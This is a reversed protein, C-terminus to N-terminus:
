EEIVEMVWRFGIASNPAFDVAFSDGADVTLSEAYNKFSGGGTNGEELLMEAANGALNYIDLKNAWYSAVPALIVGNTYQDAEKENMEELNRKFNARCSGNETFVSNGEWPYIAKTNGAQVAIVWENKTPLRFKVKEFKRKKNGNYQKTLWDCYKTASQYSVNVVPYEGYGEHIHYHEVFPTNYFDKRVWQMSDIKVKEILLSDGTSKAYDRFIRYDDNSAEYKSIYLSDNLKALSNNLVKYDPQQAFGISAYFLILTTIFVKM